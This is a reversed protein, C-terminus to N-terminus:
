AQAFFEFRADGGALDCLPVSACQERDFRRIRSAGDPFAHLFSREGDALCFLERPALRASGVSGSRVLRFRVRDSDFRSQAFREARFDIQSVRLATAPRRTM